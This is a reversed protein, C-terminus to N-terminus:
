LKMAIEPELSPLSRIIAAHQTRDFLEEPLSRQSGVDVVGPKPCVLGALCEVSGM